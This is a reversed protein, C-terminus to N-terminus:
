SFAFDSASLAAAQTNQLMISGAGAVQAGLNVLTDAGVQTIHGALDSFSDLGAGYGTIRITDLGHQFDAITDIGNLGSFDFRDSGAGGVLVDNGQSGHLV